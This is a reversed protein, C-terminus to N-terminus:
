QIFEAVYIRVVVTFTDLDANAIRRGSVAEVYVSCIVYDFFVLHVVVASVSNMNVIRNPQRM